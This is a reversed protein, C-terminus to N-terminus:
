HRGIRAKLGEFSYSPGELFSYYDAEAQEIVKAQQVVAEAIEPPISVLGSANGHLLTGPRINLGCICVSLGFDLYVGYGHSVVAGTGFLHFGPAHEQIREIDRNGMDTVLGVAGLRQLAACLMDGALCSKTRDPGVHQVVVVVPKPADHVADLLRDLGMPRDDGATTTDVTCTIAYGAMPPLAPFHCQLEMSAYGNTPDRVQFHEIANSVTPSDFQRLAEVIEPAPLKENM